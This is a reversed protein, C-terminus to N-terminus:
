QRAGAKGADPTAISGLATLILAILDAQRHTGTKEFVNGLHFAVTTSSISLDAAIEGTRRGHALACAVGAETPTLGFLDSLISGSVKPRQSPDSIFIVAQPTGADGAQAQALACVTLLLDREGSSPVSLSALHDRGESAALCASDLIAALEGSLRSSPAFVTEGIVLGGGSEHISRAVRNAFVVRSGSVLVVGFSLLDLIREMGASKGSPSASLADRLTAVDEEVKRGIREIQGLRAEITALMLDFDVPKVLYDDAGARKGNIVHDRGGLATLFVLPVDALDPRTGRMTELFGFGDLHPMSIDCLILDPRRADLLALAERGDAAGLADYGAIALEDVIDQRLRREDEVCLITKATGGKSM